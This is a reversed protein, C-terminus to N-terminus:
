RKFARLKRLDYEVKVRLTFFFKRIDEPLERPEPADRWLMVIWYALCGLYASMRVYTLSQFATSNRVTLNHGAETLIGILEYLGLGQAIRAVHTRWPLRAITSFAIMGVFLQCQLASSLLNGRDLLTGLVTREPPVPLSALVVAILLSAAALLMVGKRVDQAWEGTPCFLHRALEYTVGLQLVFDLIAFGFYTVLYDHKSGYVAVLYLVVANLVNCLILASFIPFAVARHRMLLVTLLLCHGVLGAAWFVLITGSLHM